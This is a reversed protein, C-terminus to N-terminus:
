DQAPHVFLLAASARLEADASRGLGAVPPALDMRVTARLPPSPRLVVGLGVEPRVSTPTVAVGLAGVGDLWPRVRFAETIALTGALARADPAYRAGIAFAAVGEGHALELAGSAGLSWGDTPVAALAGPEVVGLPVRADLGVSPRVRAGATWEPLVVAQAALDGVGLAVESAEGARVQEVGVPVSVGVQLPGVVRALGAVGLLLARRDYSADPVLRGDWSWGGLREDGALSVGAGWRECGTLVLPFVTTSPLCCSAAQAAAALLLIV